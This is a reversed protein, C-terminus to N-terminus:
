PHFVLYLLEQLLRLNKVGGWGEGFGLPPLLLNVFSALIAIAGIHNDLSKSFSLTKRVLRSVRQRLTNNLPHSWKQRNPFLCLNSLCARASSCFIFKVAIAIRAPTTFKKGWGLGGRVWPSPTLSECIIRPNSYIM